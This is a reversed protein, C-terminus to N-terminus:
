RWIAVIIRTHVCSHMGVRIKMNGSIDARGFQSTPSELVANFIISYGDLRHHVMETHRVAKTTRVFRERDHNDVDRHSYAINGDLRRGSLRCVSYHVDVETKRKEYVHLVRTRNHFRRSLISLLILGNHELLESLELVAIKM